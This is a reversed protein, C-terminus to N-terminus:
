NKYQKEFWISNKFAIRSVERRIYAVNIGLLACWNEFTSSEFLFKKASMFASSGLGFGVVYDNVAERIIAALLSEEPSLFSSAKASDNLQRLKM